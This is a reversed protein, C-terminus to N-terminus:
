KMENPDEGSAEIENLLAEFEKKSDIGIMKGDPKDFKNSILVQCPTVESLQPCEQL